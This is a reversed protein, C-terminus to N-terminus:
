LELKKRSIWEFFAEKSIGHVAIPMFGHNVGNPYIYVILLKAEQRDYCASRLASREMKFYLFFEKM